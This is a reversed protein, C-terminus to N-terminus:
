YTKIASFYTVGNIETMNFIKFGHADFLTYVNKESLHKNQKNDMMMYITDLLMKYRGSKKPTMTLKNNIFCGCFVTGESLNNILSDMFNDLKPIHNLKKLNVLAKVNCIEEKDYYFYKIASLVLLDAMDTIKMDNIYDFFDTNKETTMIGKVLEKEMTINLM